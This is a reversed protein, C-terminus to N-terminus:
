IKCSEEYITLGINSYDKSGNDLNVKVYNSVHKLEEKDKYKETILDKVKKDLVRIDYYRPNDLIRFYIKDKWEEDVISKWWNFTDDLQLANAVQVM